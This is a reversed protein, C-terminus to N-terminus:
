SCNPCPRWEGDSNRSLEKGCAPCRAIRGVAPGARPAPKTAEVEAASVPELFKEAFSTKITKLQDGFRIFVSEGNSGEVTGIGWEPRARHRVYRRADTAM